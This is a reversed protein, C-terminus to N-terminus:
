LALFQSPLQPPEHLSPRLERCSTGAGELVLVDLISCHWLQVYCSYREQRTLLSGPPGFPSADSHLSAASERGLELGLDDQLDQGSDLRRGLRAPPVGEAGVEQGGPLRGEQLPSVGEELAVFAM